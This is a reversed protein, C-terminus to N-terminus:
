EFDVLEKPRKWVTTNTKKNHYYAKGVSKTATSTAAEAQDTSEVVHKRWDTTKLFLKIAANRSTTYEVMQAESPPLSLPLAPAGNVNDNDDSGKMYVNRDSIEDYDYM